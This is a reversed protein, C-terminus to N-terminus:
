VKDLNLEKKVSNFHRMEKIGLYNLASNFDLHNNLAQTIIARTFNESNEKIIRRPMKHEDNRAFHSENSLSTLYERYEDYEQQSILKLNIAKTVIAEKSALCEKEIFEVNEIIGLGKKWKKLILSKSILIEGAIENCLKEMKSNQNNNTTIGNEGYLIHALEHLITFIKARYSDANNLFIVPAYSDYLCYGRCDEIEIKKNKKRDISSAVFILCNKNQLKNIIEQLAKFSDKPLTNFQIFNKIVAIIEDKDNYKKIFNAEQGISILYDKYWLQKYESNKVSEKLINSIPLDLNKRRLEPIKINEKPLKELFLYGFPIQLKNAMLSLHKYTINFNSHKPNKIFTLFREAENGFVSNAMHELSLSNRKLAQTIVSLSPTM